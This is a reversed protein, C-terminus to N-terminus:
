NILRKLLEFTEICIIAITYFPWLFSTTLTDALDPEIAHVKDGRVLLAFMVVFGAVYVVLSCIYIRMTFEMHLHPCSDVPSLWMTLISIASRKKTISRHFRDNHHWYNLIWQKIKNIYQLGITPTNIRSTTAFPITHLLPFNGTVPLLSLPSLFQLISDTQYCIFFDGFM